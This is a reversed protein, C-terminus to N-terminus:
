RSTEVSLAPPVRLTQLVVCYRETLNELTALQEAVLTRYHIPWAMGYHAEAADFYGWLKDMVRDPLFHTHVDVLGPLGLEAVFQPVDADEGPPAPFGARGPIM